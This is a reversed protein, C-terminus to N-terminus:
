AFTAVYFEILYMGADAILVGILDGDPAYVTIGSGRAGYTSFTPGLNSAPLLLPADVEVTLSNIGDISTVRLEIYDLTVSTSGTPLAITIFVGTDAEKYQVAQLSMTQGPGRPLFGAADGYSVGYVWFDPTVTAGAQLAEIENDLYSKFLTM